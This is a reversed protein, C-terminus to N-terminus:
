GRFDGRNGSEQSCGCPVGNLESHKDQERESGHSWFLTRDELFQIEVIERALVNRGRMKYISGWLFGKRNGFVLDFARGGCESLMQGERGHLLRCSHRGTVKVTCKFEMLVSVVATKNGNYRWSRTCQQVNQNSLLFMNWFLLNVCM